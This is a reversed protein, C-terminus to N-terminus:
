GRIPTKAVDLLLAQVPRRRNAQPSASAVLPMPTPRTLRRRQPPCPGDRRRTPEPPGPHGRASRTPPVAPVTSPRPSRPAAARTPPAEAGTPEAAASAHRDPTEQVQPACIRDHLPVARTVSSVALPKRAAKAHANLSRDLDPRHGREFRGSRLHSLGRLWGRRVGAERAGSRRREAQGVCSAGANGGPGSWGLGGARALRRPHTSQADRVHGDRLHSYILRFRTSRSSTLRRQWDCCSM